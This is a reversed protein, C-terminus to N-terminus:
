PSCSEGGLPRWFYALIAAPVVHTRDKKGVKAVNGKRMEGEKLVFHNLTQHSPIQLEQLGPTLTVTLILAHDCLDGFMTVKLSTSKLEWFELARSYAKSPFLFSTKEVVLEPGVQVHVGGAEPLFIARSSSSSSSRLFLSAEARSARAVLIYPQHVGFHSPDMTLEGWSEPLSTAALIALAWSTMQAVFLFWLFFRVWGPDPEGLLVRLEMGM